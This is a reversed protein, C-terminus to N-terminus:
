HLLDYYVTDLGMHMCLSICSSMCINPEHALSSGIIGAHNHAYYTALVNLMIGAYYIHACIALIILPADLSKFLPLVVLNIMM